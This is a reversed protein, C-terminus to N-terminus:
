APVQSPLAGCDRLHGLWGHIDAAIANPEHEDTTSAYCIIAGLHPEIRALLKALAPAAMILEAARQVEEDSVQNVLSGTLEVSIRNGIEILCQGNETQGNQEWQETAM